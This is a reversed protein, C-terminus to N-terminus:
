PANLKLKYIHDRAAVFMDDQDNFVMQFAQYNPLKITGMATGNATFVDIQSITSIYVRSQADVGINEPSGSGFSSYDGIRTQFKGSSNFVFASDNFRGLAYITGLGDIALPMDLEASDTQSSIAKKFRQMEAGTTANVKVIDDHAANTDAVLLNGDAMVVVDEYYSASTGFTKLLTGTGDYKSIKYDAVVYVNGTRDVALARIYTKGPLM